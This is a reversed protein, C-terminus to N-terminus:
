SKSEVRGADRELVQRLRSLALASEAAIKDRTLLPDLLAALLNPMRYRMDREFRTGEKEETLTYSITATGGEQGRGEITWRRPADRETVTWLARGRRGAVRYDESAQEGKQLPHDTAGSVALSSPHWQPWNGPRTVFDFVDPAARAIVIEEHILVPTRPAPLLWAAILACVVAIAARVALRRGTGSAQRGKTQAM